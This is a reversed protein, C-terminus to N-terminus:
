KECPIVLEYPPLIELANTNTNKVVINNTEIDVGIKQYEIKYRAMFYTNNPLDEIQPAEQPLQVGKLRAYAVGIGVYTSFRDEKHCKAIAIKNTRTDIVITKRKITTAGIYGSACLYKEYWELAWENFNKVYMIDIGKM